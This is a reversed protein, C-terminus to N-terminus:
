VAVFGSLQGRGVSQRGSMSFFNLTRSLDSDASAWLECLWVRDIGDMSGKMM